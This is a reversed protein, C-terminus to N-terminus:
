KENLLNFDIKSEQTKSLMYKRRIFLGVVIIIIIGVIIGFITFFSSYNKKNHKNRDIIGIRQEDVDFIIVKNNLQPIGISWHNINHKSIVMLSIYCDKKESYTFLEKLKIEMMINGIEIKLSEIKNVDFNKKDCVLYDYMSDGDIKCNDKFEEVIKNLIYHGSEFPITIYRSQTDIFVREDKSALLSENKYIVQKLMCDWSYPYTTDKCSCYEINESYQKDGFTILGGNFDKNIEISFVRKDIAQNYVLYDLYSTTEEGHRNGQSLNKMIGINADTYIIKKDLDTQTMVGIVFKSKIENENMFPTPIDKMYNGIFTGGELLISMNTPLTTLSSSGNYDFTNNFLSSLEKGIFWSFSTGTDVSANFCQKPIGLCFEFIPNHFTLNDLLPHLGTSHQYKIFTLPKEFYKDQLSLKILILFLGHFYIIKM